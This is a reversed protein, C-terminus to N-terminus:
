QFITKKMEDAWFIYDIAQYILLGQDAFNAIDQSGDFYSTEKFDKYDHIFNNSLLNIVVDNKKNNYQVKSIEEAIEWAKTGKEIEETSLRELKRVLECGNM